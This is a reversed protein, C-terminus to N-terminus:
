REEKTVAFPAQHSEMEELHWYGRAWNHKELWAMFATLLTAELEKQDDVTAKACFEDSDVIDDYLQEQAEELVRSGDFLRTLAPKLDFYKVRGTWFFQGAELGLDEGAEKLAEERTDYENAPNFAEEDSVAVWADESPFV